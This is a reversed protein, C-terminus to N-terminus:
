FVIKVFRDIGNFDKVVMSYDCYRFLKVVSEAEGLGVEMVLMGGRVLYKGADEAIRRYYDLGDAGGDLALRPEFDRVERQLGAIDGSPIYPPNCVIIDFRGRIRSFLDSQVFAIDAGNEEANEKALALAEESIDSATVSAKRKNKELEKYM